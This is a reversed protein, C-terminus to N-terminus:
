EYGEVGVGGSGHRSILIQNLNNQKYQSKIIKCIFSATLFLRRITRYFKFCHIFVVACKRFIHPCKKFFQVVHDFCNDWISIFGNTIIHRCEPLISVQYIICCMLFM